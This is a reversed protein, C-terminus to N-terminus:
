RGGHRLRQVESELEAVKQNAHYTAEEIKREAERGMIKAAKEINARATKQVRVLEEETAHLSEEARIRLDREMRLSVDGGERTVVESAAKMSRLEAELVNRADEADKRAAEAQRARKTAAVRSEKELALEDALPSEDGQRTADLEERLGDAEARSALLLGNLEAIESGREDDTQMAKKQDGISHLSKLESQLMDVQCELDEERHHRSQDSMSQKRLSSLESELQLRLERERSLEELPNVASSSSCGLEEIQDMAAQLGEEASRRALEAEEKAEEALQRARRERIMARLPGQEEEDNNLCTVLDDRASQLEDQLISSERQADALEKKLSKSLKQLEEVQERGKEEAEM